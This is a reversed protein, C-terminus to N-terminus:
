SNFTDEVVRIVARSVDNLYFIPPFTDLCTAHFSNSDMM